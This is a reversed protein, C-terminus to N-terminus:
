LPASYRHLLKLIILVFIEEVNAVKCTPAHIIVPLLLIAMASYSSSSLTEGATLHM